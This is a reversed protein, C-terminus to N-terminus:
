HCLSRHLTPGVPFNDKYMQVRLERGPSIFLHIMSDSVLNSFVKLHVLSMLQVKSVSRIVLGENESM